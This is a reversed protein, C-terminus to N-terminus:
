NSKVCFYIKENALRYKEQIEGSVEKETDYITVEFGAEELKKPYDRGYWRVHDEQGFHKKRDEESTISWDEYTTERTYDIPVLLIAWGNPKLVRLFEKMAKNDEPVHELVHSCIVADISNDEFDKLDTIDLSVTGEPYAKEYGKEFKDGYIYNLNQQQKLKNFFIEEPAIHLLTIQKTFINTKENLFFWLARNRELSGCKPCRVNKRPPRGYDGFQIEKSECLPCNNMQQTNLKPNRWQYIKSRLTQPVLKIYLNQLM